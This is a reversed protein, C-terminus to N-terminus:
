FRKTYSMLSRLLYILYRPGRNTALRYAINSDRTVVMAIREGKRELLANTAVTTGMRISGIKTDLPEGRQIEKGLFKSM